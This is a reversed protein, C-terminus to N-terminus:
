GFGFGMEGLAEHIGAEISGESPDPISVIKSETNRFFDVSWKAVVQQFVSPNNARLYPLLSEVSDAGPAGEDYRFKWKVIGSYEINFTVIINVSGSEILLVAIATAHPPLEESITDSSSISEEVSHAASRGVTTSYGYSTSGTAKVPGGGVEVSITASWDRTTSESWEVSSSASVTDSLEAEYHGAVSNDSNDWLKHALAKPKISPPVIQVKSAIVRQKVGSMDAIPTFRGFEGDLGGHLDWIAWQWPIPNPPPAVAEGTIEATTTAPTTGPIIKVGFTSM